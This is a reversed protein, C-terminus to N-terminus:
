YMISSMEKMDLLSPFLFFSGGSFVPDVGLRSIYYFCTLV